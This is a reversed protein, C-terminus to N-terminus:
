PREEAKAEVVKPAEEFMEGLLYITTGTLSMVM